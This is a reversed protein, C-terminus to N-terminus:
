ANAENMDFVIVTAGHKAYLLATAQGIGSGGGTVVAVKGELRPEKSLVMKIGQIEPINDAPPVVSTTALATTNAPAPTTSASVAVGPLAASNSVPSSSMISTVM